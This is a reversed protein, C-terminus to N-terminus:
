ASWILRPPDAARGCGTRHKWYGQRRWWVRSCGRLLVECQEHSEARTPAPFPPAEWRVLNVRVAQNAGCTRPATLGRHSLCAMWVARASEGGLPASFFRRDSLAAPRTWCAEPRATLLEAARHLGAECCHHRRRSAHALGARHPRGDKRLRCQERTRQGAVRGRRGEDRLSLSSIKFSATWSIRLSCSTM